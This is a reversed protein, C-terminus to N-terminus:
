KQCPRKPASSGSLVEWGGDGTIAANEPGLMTSAVHDAKGLYKQAIEVLQDRNVALLRERHAQYLEDTIHYLFERSGQQGPSMPKDVDSFVSLKSEDIDQAGFSGESAWKISRDFADFTELSKPDRYSYFQFLGNHNIRAGGGYAGGLFLSCDILWDISRVILWDILWDISQHFVLCSTRWDILWDILEWTYDIWSSPYDPIKM